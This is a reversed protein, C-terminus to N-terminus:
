RKMATSPPLQRDPFPLSHRHHSSLVETEAQSHLRHSLANDFSSASTALEDQNLPFSAHCPTVAHCRQGSSLRCRPSFLSSFVCIPIVIIDIWCTYISPSSKFWRYTLKIKVFCIYILYVKTWRIAYFVVIFISNYICIM